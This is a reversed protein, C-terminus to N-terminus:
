GATGLVVNDQMSCLAGGNVVSLNVGNQINRLLREDISYRSLRCSLCLQIIDRGGLRDFIIQSTDGNFVYCCALTELHWLSTFRGIDNDHGM